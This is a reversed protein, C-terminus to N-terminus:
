SGRGSTRTPLLIACVAVNCWTLIDAFFRRGFHAKNSFACLFGTADCHQPYTYCSNGRGGYTFPTYRGRGLLAAKLRQAQVEITEGLPKRFGLPHSVGELLREEFLQILRRRGEENM